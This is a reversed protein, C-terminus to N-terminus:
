REIQTSIILIVVAMFLPWMSARNILHRTPGTPSSSSSLKDEPIQLLLSKGVVGGVEDKSRELVESTLAAMCQVASTARALDAITHLSHILVSWSRTLAMDRTLLGADVLLERVTRIVPLVEKAEAVVADIARVRALPPLDLPDKKLIQLSFEGALQLVEAARDLERPGLFGEATFVIEGFIEREWGEIRGLLAARRGFYSQFSVMRETSTTAIKLLPQDARDFSSLTRSLRLRSIRDLSRLLAEDPGPGAGIESWVRDEEQDLPDPFDPQLNKFIKKQDKKSM